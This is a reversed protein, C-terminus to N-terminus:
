RSVRKRWCSRLVSRTMHHYRTMMAGSRHILRFVMRHWQAGGALAVAQVQERNIAMNLAKRVRIDDFPPKQHNVQIFVYMTSATQEWRLNPNEDVTAKFTPKLDCVVDVEGAELAMLAANNDPMM